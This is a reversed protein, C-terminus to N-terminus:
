SISPIADAQPFGEAAQQVTKVSLGREAAAKTAKDLMPQAIDALTVDHGLSALFLGTHGEARPSM